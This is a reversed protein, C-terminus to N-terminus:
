FNRIDDKNVKGSAGSTESTSAATKGDKGMSWLDFDPNQTGSNEGGSSNVATRYCYENGWPDIIPTNANLTGSTWGQKSNEHNLEPLYIKTDNSYGDWYLAQFLISSTGTGKSGTASSKNETPPYTGNDLKYEELAKSLLDIQIKARATLQRDQVYGVGGIVLGALVVIITIVTMLEILTFAALGSRRQKTKM